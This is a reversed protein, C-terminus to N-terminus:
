KVENLFYSNGERHSGAMNSAYTTATQQSRNAARLKGREGSIYQQFREYNRKELVQIQTGLETIDQILEKMLGIETQYLGQNVLLEDELKKYLSDFGADIQNLEGIGVGKEELLDEFRDVDMQGESLLQEQEKTQEYLSSLVTKKKQLAKVMMSIYTDNESTKSM